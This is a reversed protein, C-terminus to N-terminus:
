IIYLYTSLLCSVWIFVKCSASATAAAIREERVGYVREPERREACRQVAGAADLEFVGLDFLKDEMTGAVVDVADLVDCGRGWIDFVTPELDGDRQLRCGDDFLGKDADAEVAEADREEPNQRRM